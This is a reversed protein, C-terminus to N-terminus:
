CSSRIKERLGGFYRYDKEFCNKIFQDYCAEPDEWVIARGNLQNFQFNREKDKKRGAFCFSAEPYHGAVFPITKLIDCYGKM